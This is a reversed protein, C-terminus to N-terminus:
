VRRRKWETAAFCGASALLLMAFGQLHSNDGTQPLYETNEWSMVFPSLSKVEACLGTEMRILTNDTTSYVETGTKTAHRVVFEHKDAQKRSMGEPYPLYVIATGEFQKERIKEDIMTLEYGIMNEADVPISEIKLFIDEDKDPEEQTFLLPEKGYNRNEDLDSKKHVPTPHTDGPLIPCVFTRALEDEDDVGRRVAIVSFPTDGEIIYDWDITINKAIKQVAKVGEAYSLGAPV